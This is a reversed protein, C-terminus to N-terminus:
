SVSVTLGLDHWCQTLPSLCLFFSFFVCKLESEPDDPGMIDEELVDGKDV